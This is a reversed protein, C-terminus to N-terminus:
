QSLMDHLPTKGATRPCTSQDQAQHGQHGQHELRLEPQLQCHYQFSVIVHTRRHSPNRTPISSISSCQVLPSMAWPWIPSLSSNLELVKLEDIRAGIDNSAQDRMSYHTNLTFMGFMLTIIPHIM